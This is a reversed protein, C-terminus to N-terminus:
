NIISKTKSFKSKMKKGVKYFIFVCLIILVIAVFPAIVAIIPLIIAAFNEFFTVISNAFGGTMATSGVRIGATSTQILGAGGSGGVIAVGWQVFPPLDSMMVFSAFGGAIVAAPTAILDLANDVWPIFYAFMETITAVGLFIMTYFSFIWSFEPGITIPLLGCYGSISTIFLPSFVRFGCCASLSIGMVIAVIMSGYDGM